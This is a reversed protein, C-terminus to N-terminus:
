GRLLTIARGSPATLAEVRTRDDPPPAAARADFVVLTGHDLGLRELYDDLQQLGTQVPDRRKDRDRWVKVEFAERQWAPQGDPTTFPSCATSTPPASSSSGSRPPTSTRRPSPSPRRSAWASSSRLSSRTASSPQGMTAPICPGAINFNRM